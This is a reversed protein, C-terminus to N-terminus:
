GEALKHAAQTGQADLSRETGRDGPKGTIRAAHDRARDEKGDGTVAHGLVALGNGARNLSAGGGNDTLLEAKHRVAGGADPHGVAPPRQRVHRGGKVPMGAPLQLHHHHGAAAGAARHSVQEVLQEHGGADRGAQDAAETAPHPLAHQRRQRRLHLRQVDLLPEGAHMRAPARAQM